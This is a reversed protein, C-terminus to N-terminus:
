KRRFLLPQECEECKLMGNGMFKEAERIEKITWILNGPPLSMHHDPGKMKKDLTFHKEIIEAGAAVAMMDLIYNESHNSFGITSYPFMKKLTKIAKLNCEDDPPPYASICHLISMDMKDLVSVAADIERGNAMGTSLFVGGFNKHCYELLPINTIQGSPIKIRYTLEAIDSASEVGFASCLFDIDNSDCYKILDFLDDITLSYQKIVDWVEPVEHQYFHQFKVCDAGATKALDVMQKAADISGGHNVGVEAIFYVMVIGKENDM